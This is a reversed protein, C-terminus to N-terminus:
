LECIPFQLRSANVSKALNLQTPLEAPEGELNGTIRSESGQVYTKDQIVSAFSRMASVTFFLLSRTFHRSKRRTEM